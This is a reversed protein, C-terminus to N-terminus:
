IPSVQVIIWGKNFIGVVKGLENLNIPYGYNEGTRTDLLFVKDTNLTYYTRGKITESSFIGIKKYRELFKRIYVDKKKLEYGNSNNFILKAIDYTSKQKEMFILNLLLFVDKKIQNIANM